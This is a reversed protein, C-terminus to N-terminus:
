LYNRVSRGTVGIHEAIERHTKGQARLMRACRRRQRALLEYDARTMMGVARRRQENAIRKRRRRETSDIITSLWQMESSTIEFVDILTDNCPTYIPSMIRGNYTVTKGADREKAKRYLTGLDANHYRWTPDIQNALEAAERYMSDATIKSDLLFVLSWFLTLMRFGEHVGGRLNALTQLDCLRAWALSQRTFGHARALRADPSERSRRERRQEPRAQPLIAAMTEFNYRVPDGAEDTRVDLVRVIEGSRTNVTNELRLVRAADKAAHDGGWPRLTEILQREVAEWRPLAARPIARELLWKPQLGRGSFLTISPPPLGNDVCAQALRQGQAEVSLGCMEPSRYTDVDAFSVAIQRMNVVRRRRRYFEAQSIWSDITPNITDLVTPLLPMEYATERWSSRDDPDRSQAITFYGPGQTDHYTTPEFLEQQM